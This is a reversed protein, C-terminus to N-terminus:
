HLICYALAQCRQKKMQYYNSVSCHFHTAMHFWCARRQGLLLIRGSAHCRPLRDSSRDLRRRRRVPVTNSDLAPFPDGRSEWRGRSCSRGPGTGDLVGSIAVASAPAGRRLLKRERERWGLLAGPRASRHCVPLVPLPQSGSEISRENARGLRCWGPALWRM